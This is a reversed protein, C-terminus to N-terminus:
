VTRGTRLLPYGYPEFEHGFRHNVIRVVKETMYSQWPKRGTTVKYRPLEHQPIGLVKTAHAWDWDLNEYRMVFDVEDHMFLRDFGEWPHLEDWRQVHELLTRRAPIPGKKSWPGGTTLWDIVVIEYPNRVATFVFEDGQLPIHKRLIHPPRIDKAGCKDVLVRIVSTSATRPTALYLFKGPLFAAM